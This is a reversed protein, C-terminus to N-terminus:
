EAYADRMTGYVKLVVKNDEFLIKLYDKRYEYILQNDSSKILLLSPMFSRLYKDFETQDDYDTPNYAITETNNEYNASQLIQSNLSNYTWYITKALSNCSPM